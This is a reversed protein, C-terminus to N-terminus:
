EFLSKEYDLSTLHKKKQTELKPIKNQLVCNLTGGPIWRRELGKQQLTEEAGKVGDVSIAFLRKMALSTGSTCKFSYVKYYM